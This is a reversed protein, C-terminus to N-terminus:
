LYDTGRLVKEVGIIKQQGVGFSALLSLIAQTQAEFIPTPLIIVEGEVYDRQLIKGNYQYQIKGIKPIGPCPDGAINNSLVINLSNSNVSNNLENTIDIQSENKGYTAHLIELKRKRVERRRIANHIKSFIFYGLVFSLALSILYSLSIKKNLVEIVGPPIYIYAIIGGSIRILYDLFKEIIWTLIVIAIIVWWTDKYKLFIKQM